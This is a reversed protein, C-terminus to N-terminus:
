WERGKERRERERKKKWGEGREGREGKKEREGKERREGGRRRRERGLDVLDTFFLCSCTLVNCDIDFTVKFMTVERTSHNNSIRFFVRWLRYLAKLRMNNNYLVRTIYRSAICRNNITM